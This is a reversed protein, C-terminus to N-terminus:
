PASLRELYRKALRNISQSEPYDNIVQQLLEKAKVTDGKRDFAVALKYHCDAAKNHEPHQELVAKFQTIAVDYNKQALQVEGSWYLANGALKHDPYAQNFLDLKQLAQTFEKKKIFAMAQRYIQEPPEAAIKADAEANPQAPKSETDLITSLRRDMEMYRQQQLKKLQEILHNQEEVIGRLEAIEQQMTEVMTLLETQLSANPTPAPFANESVFSSSSSTDASAPQAAPGQGVAVWEDEAASLGPLTLALILTLKKM